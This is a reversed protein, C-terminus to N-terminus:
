RDPVTFSVTVQYSYLNGMTVTLIGHLLRDASYHMIITVTFIVTLKEILENNM